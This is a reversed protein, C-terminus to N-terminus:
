LLPCGFIVCHSQQIPILEPTIQKMEGHSSAVAWSLISNESEKQELKELAQLHDEQEKLIARDDLTDHSKAPLQSCTLDQRYPLLMVGYLLEPSPQLIVQLDVSHSGSASFTDTSHYGDLKKCIQHHLLERSKSSQGEALDHIISLPLKIQTGEKMLM